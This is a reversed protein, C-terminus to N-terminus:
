AITNFRRNIASLVAKVISENEQGVTMLASGSLITEVNKNLLTLVVCVANKSGFSVLELGELAFASDACAKELCNLTAEAVLRKKGTSSCSGQAVGEFDKDRYFLSIAVRCTLASTEVSVSKLKLRSPNIVTEKPPHVQAISIKRYDVTLGHRTILTSEIDRQLGKLNKQSTSLVHIETIEEDNAVIRVAEITPIESITKELESITGNSVLSEM